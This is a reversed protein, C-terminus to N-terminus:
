YVVLELCVFLQVIIKNRGCTRRLVPVGLCRKAIIKSMAGKGAISRVVCIKESVAASVSRIFNPLLIPRLGLAALVRYRRM